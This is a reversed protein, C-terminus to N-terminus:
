KGFLSDRTRKVGQRIRVVTAKILSDTVYLSTVLPVDTAFRLKFSENGITFDFINVPEVRAAELLRKLLVEGPSFKALSVDFSPKYWTYRGAHVFGFHAAILREDLHLTTFRLFGTGGLNQVIQRYFEKSVDDLFLSPYPTNRWREIHQCFLQDLVSSIDSSSNYCNDVLMGKRALKREHRILSKKKLKHAVVRMDMRPAETQDVIIARTKSRGSLLYKLTESETQIRNLRFHRFRAVSEAAIQLISEIVGPLESTDLSSSVLIDSYDSPGKGAFILEGSVNEFAGAAVLRDSISVLVIILESNKGYTLEWSYLWGARLFITDASSGDLLEDWKGGIVALERFSQLVVTNFHSPLRPKTRKMVILQTGVM